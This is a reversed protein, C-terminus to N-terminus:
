TKAMEEKFADVEKRGEATKCSKCYDPCKVDGTMYGFKPTLEGCHKCQCVTSM